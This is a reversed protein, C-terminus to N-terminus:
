PPRSRESPPRLVATARQIWSALFVLHEPRPMGNAFTRVEGLSLGPGADRLIEVTLRAGAVKASYIYCSGELIPRARWAVCNHMERGERILEHLTAVPRVIGADSKLGPIPPKAFKIDEDPGLGLESELDVLDEVERLRAHWRVCDDIVRQFGNHRDVRTRTADLFDRLEGLLVDVPREGTAVRRLAVVNKSVFAAFGEADMKPAYRAIEGVIRYWCANDHPQAPIDEPVVLPPPIRVLWAPHVLPGAKRILLRLRSAQDRFAAPVTAEGFLGPFLRFQRLPERDGSLWAEVAEALIRDLKRGEIVQQAMRQGIWRSAQPGCQLGVAFLVAGPCVAALQAIRGTGDRQVLGYVGLRSAPRFRLAIRRAEPKCLAAAHGALKGLLLRYEGLPGASDDDRTRERAWGFANVFVDDCGSRPLGRAMSWWPHPMCTTSVTLAPEPRILLRLEFGEGDSDSAVVLRLGAADRYSRAWFEGLGVIEREEMTAM